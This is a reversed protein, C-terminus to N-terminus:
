RPLRVRRTIRREHGDGDGLSLTLRYVGPRARAAVRLRLLPSGASVRWRRSAVRRRGRRLSAAVRATANLRVRMLVRRHRGHGTVAVRRLGAVFRTGPRSREPGPTRSQSPESGKSRGDSRGEADFVAVVTTVPGIALSCTPATSCGGRWGAFSSGAAPAAVLTERGGFRREIACSTGCDLSESRVTGSGSGSKVIRFRVSVTPNMDGGPTGGFIVNAWTVSNVTVTCTTDGRKPAPPECGTANWQPPMSSDTPEARLTVRSLVEFEGCEVLWVDDPEPAPRCPGNEATSITGPGGYAVRIRQPSFLATVSQRDTDMRLVCPGTGPCRQDSWGVFRVGPANPAATLTVQEGRAYDFSCHGLEDASGACAASGGRSPDRSVTGNGNPIVDLEVTEADAAAAPPEPSAASPSAVLACIALVAILAGLMQVAPREPSPAAPVTPGVCSPRIHRNRKM